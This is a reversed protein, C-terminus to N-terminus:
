AEHFLDIRLQSLNRRGIKEKANLLPTHEPHSFIRHFHLHPLFHPVLTGKKKLQPHLSSSFSTCTLTFFYLFVQTALSKKDKTSLGLNHFRISPLHCSVTSLCSAKGRKGACLFFFRHFCINSIVEPVRHRYRYRPNRPATSLPEPLSLPLSLDVLASGAVRTFFMM